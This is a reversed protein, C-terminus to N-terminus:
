KKTDLLPCCQKGLECLGDERSVPECTKDSCHGGKAACKTGSQFDEGGRMVLFVILVLILIGIVAIILFNMGLEVGKKSSPLM